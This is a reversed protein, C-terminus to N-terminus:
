YYKQKCAKVTNGADNVQTAEWYMAHGTDTGWIGDVKIKWVDQIYKVASITKPGYSGDVAL